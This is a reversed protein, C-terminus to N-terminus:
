TDIHEFNQEVTQMEQDIGALMQDLDQEGPSSSFAGMLGQSSLFENFEQNDEEPIFSKMGPLLFKRDDGYLEQLKTCFETVHMNDERYQRLLSAFEKIEQYGMQKNLREMYRQVVAEASNEDDDDSLDDDEEPFAESLRSTRKAEQVLKNTLTQGPFEDEESDSESNSADLKISAKRRSSQRRQVASGSPQLPPKSYVLQLAQQLITCIDEADAQSSTVVLKAKQSDGAKLFLLHEQDDNVYSLSAVEHIPVRLILVQEQTAKSFKISYASLGVIINNEATVKWPLQGQRRANDLRDLLYMRNNMDAEMPIDQLVGVYRCLKDVFGELLSEPNRTVLEASSPQKVPTDGAARVKTAGRQKDGGPSPSTQRRLPNM